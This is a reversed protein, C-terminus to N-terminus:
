APAKVKALFPGFSIPGSCPPDRDPPRKAWPPAHVPPLPGADTAVDQEGVPGAADMLHLRVKPNPDALGSVWAGPVGSSLLRAMSLVLYNPAFDEKKAPALAEVLLTRVAAACEEADTPPEFGSLVLAAAM